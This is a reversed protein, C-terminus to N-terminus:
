AKAKGKGQYVRTYAPSSVGSGSAANLIAQADLTAIKAEADSASRQYLAKYRALVESLKQQDPAELSQTVTKIKVPPQTHLKVYALQTELEQLQQTFEEFADM